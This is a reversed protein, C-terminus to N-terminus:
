NLPPTAQPQVNFVSGAAGPKYEVVINANTARRIEDIMLRSMSDIGSGAPFPVVFRIPRSPYDQAIVSGPGTIAALTCAALAINRLLHSLIPLSM